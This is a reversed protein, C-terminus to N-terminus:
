AVSRRWEQRVVMAEWRWAEVGELMMKVGEAGEAKMRM